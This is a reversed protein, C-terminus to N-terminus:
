IVVNVTSHFGQETLQLLFVAGGIVAIFAVIILWTNGFLVHLLQTFGKNHSLIM